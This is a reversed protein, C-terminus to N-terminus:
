KKKRLKDLKDPDDMTTFLGVWAFGASFSQTMNTPEVLGIGLFCGLAVFVIFEVRAQAIPSMPIMELVRALGFVRLRERGWRAWYATAGAATYAVILGNPLPSALM